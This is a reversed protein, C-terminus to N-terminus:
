SARLSRVAELDLRTLAPFAELIEAEPVSAQLYEQITAVPIRTGALVPKSGLTSRRQEIQGARDRPRQAAAAIRARIEQMPLSERIILQGPDAEGDWSGDPHQIAVIVEARGGRRRKKGEATGFVLQTLPEQYGGSRLHNVLRRIRQLSLGRDLLETIVLLSMMDTYSYLHVASRASLQHSTTPEILGTSRWYDLRRNSLGSLESARAPTFVVLQEDM